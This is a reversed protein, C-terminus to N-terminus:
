DGFNRIDAAGVQEYESDHDGHEHRRPAQNKPSPELPQSPMLMRQAIEEHHAGVFLRLLERIEDHLVAFPPEIEYPKQRLIPESAIWREGPFVFDDTVQIIQFPDAMAVDDVLDNEDHRALDQTIHLIQKQQAFLQADIGPDRDSDKRM